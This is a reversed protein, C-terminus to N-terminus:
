LLWQVGNHDGGDEDSTLAVILDRKPQYGERKLRVLGLVLDADGSKDDETGRGYFFGDKEIFQFPDTTWDERRAEVVDLHALFLIPKLASDTGRYRVVLNGKRATPGLVRVDADSFGAKLLLTAMEEAARTNDGTSDTTNTEILERLVDRAMPRQDAPLEGGLVCSVALVHLLRKM